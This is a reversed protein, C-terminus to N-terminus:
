PRAEPVTLRAAGGAPRRGPQGGPPGGPTHWEVERIARDDCKAILKKRDMPDLDDLEVGHQEWALKAALEARRLQFRRFWEAAKPDRLSWRWLELASLRDTTRRELRDLVKAVGSHSLRVRPHQAIRRLSWGRRHLNRILRDREVTSVGGNHRMKTSLVVAVGIM